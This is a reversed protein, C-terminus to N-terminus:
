RLVEVDVDIQYVTDGLASEDGDAAVAASLL